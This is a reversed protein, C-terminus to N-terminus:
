VDPYDLLRTSYSSGHELALIVALDSAVDVIDILDANSGVQRSDHVSSQVDTLPLSGEQGRVSKCSTCVFPSETCHTDRVMDEKRTNM